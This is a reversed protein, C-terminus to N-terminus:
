KKASKFNWFRLHGSRDGGEGNMISPSILHIIIITRLTRLLVDGDPDDVDHDHLGHIRRAARSKQGGDRCGRRPILTRNPPISIRGLARPDSIGIKPTNESTHPKDVKM